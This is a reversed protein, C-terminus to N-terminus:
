DAAERQNANGDTNSDKKGLVVGSMSLKRDTKCFYTLKKGETPNCM